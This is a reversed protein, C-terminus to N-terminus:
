AVSQVSRTTRNDTRRLPHHADQDVGARRRAPRLRDTRSSQRRSCALRAPSAPPTTRATLQRPVRRRRRDDRGVQVVLPRNAAQEHAETVTHTEPPPLLGVPCSVGTSHDPCYGYPNKALYQQHYLHMKHTYCPGVFKRVTSGSKWTRGTLLSLRWQFM